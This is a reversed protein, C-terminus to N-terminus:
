LHHIYLKLNKVLFQLLIRTKTKAKIYFSEIYCNFRLNDLECSLLNFDPTFFPVSSFKMFNEQYSYYYTKFSPLPKAFLEEALVLNDFVWICLIPCYPPNKPLGKALLRKIDNSCCCWCCICRNIFFTQTQSPLM